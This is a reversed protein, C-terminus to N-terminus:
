SRSDFSPYCRRIEGVVLLWHKVRVKSQSSTRGHEKNALVLGRRAGNYEVRKGEGVNFCWQGRFLVGVYQRSYADLAESRGQVRFRPKVM